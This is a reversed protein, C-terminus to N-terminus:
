VLKLALLLLLFLSYNQKVEHADAGEADGGCDLVHERTSVEEEASYM